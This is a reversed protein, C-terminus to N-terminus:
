RASGAQARAAVVTGGRRWLPSLGAAKLEGGIEAKSFRHVYSYGIAGQPTLFWTYWDGPEVSRSGRHRQRAVALATLLRDRLRRRAQLTLILLGGAELHATLRHLTAIRRGRGAIFSYLTPTFYIADFRRGPLDLTAVHARVFEVGMKAERAAEKAERVMEPLADFGTVKYGLRALHIAESGSGSGAVLVSGGAPIRRALDALLREDLNSEHLDRYSAVQQRYKELVSGEAAEHGGFDPAQRVRRWALRAYALPARLRSLGCAALLRAAGGRSNEVVGLMREEPVWSRRAPLADIGTLLAGSSSRALVRRVDGFRDMDFLALDGRRPRRATSVRVIEGDRLAPEFAFGAYSLEVTRGAQLLVKLTAAPVLADIRALRVSRPCTQTWASPVEASM